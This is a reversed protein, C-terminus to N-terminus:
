TSLITQWAAQANKDAGGYRWTAYDAFWTSPNVGTPHWALETFFAFAAPNNDNAEPMLAIGALASGPKSAWSPFEAAWTTLNAGITTHGGFNWITGFAYPTGSWQQERNLGQYRDSLGDVILMKSKDVGALLAPQPNSQWGLIAWTAGPHATELATQVAHAADGVPVDGAQGGEHLLDMKYMSSDGFLRRQDAYFASAVPAFHSDRPDLWDPRTFGVWDGQPVIHAGPNKAPFNPPVTGYYGPLVPTMGLSRLRDAIKRGLEAQQQLLTTSIPEDFTSMNQLLWWPQHGPQPIWDRLEADTYGFRKFVDYYVLAQGPYVLMENIGNAALVDIEHQWQDWTWYPGTYGSMTDNGDFRNAFPTSQAIPNSPTPLQRPLHATADGNSTIGAHVVNKLYYNAGTLLTANSTGAIVPRKGDACIAFSDGAGSRATARLEIQDAKDGILRHLAATAPGTDFTANDFTASDSTACSQATTQAATTQDAATPTASAPLTCIGLALGVVILSISLRRM